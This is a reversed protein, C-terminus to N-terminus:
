DDYSSEAEFDSESDVVKGDKATLTIEKENQENKRDKQFTVSYVPTNDDVKLTWETAKMDTDANKKAIEIAQKPSTKIEKLPLVEHDKNEQENEETRQLEKNMKDANIVWTVEKKASSNIGEMKYVPTQNETEFKVETLQYGKNKKQFAKNLQEPTAVYKAADAKTTQNGSQAKSDKTEEKTSKTTQEVSSSSSEKHEEEKKDGCGVLAVSLLGVMGIGLWKKKM